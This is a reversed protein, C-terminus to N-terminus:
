KKIDLFNDMRFFKDGEEKSFKEIILEDSNRNLLALLVNKELKSKEYLDVM